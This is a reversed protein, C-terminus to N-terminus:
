PPAHRTENFAATAQAGCWRSRTSRNHRYMVRGARASSRSLVFPAPLHDVLEFGRVPVAGGV